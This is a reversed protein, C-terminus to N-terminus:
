GRYAIYYNYRLRHAIRGHNSRNAMLLIDFIAHRMGYKSKSYIEEIPAKM